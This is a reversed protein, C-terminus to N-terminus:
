RAKLTEVQKIADACWVRIADNVTEGYRLALDWFVHNVSEGETAMRQRSREFERDQEGLRDRLREIHAINIDPSTNAGFFLKLLMENRVPHQEAPQRLWRALEERGKDTITYVKMDPQENREIVEITSLGTQVLKRLMPYIQGYSENWFFMSTKELEKKIEYGCKPSLNLMGLVAYKTRSERAM